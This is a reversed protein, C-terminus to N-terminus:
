PTIGCPFEARDLVYGMTAVGDAAVPWLLWGTCRWRVLLRARAAADGPTFGARAAPARHPPTWLHWAPWAPAASCGLAFPAAELTAAQPLSGQDPCTQAPAPAAALLASVFAAGIRRRLPTRHNM